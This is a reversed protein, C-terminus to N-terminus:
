KILMMKKTEAVGGVTLRCFYVGSALRRGADDLGDWVVEYSGHDHPRDVLTRVARGALDYVALNLRGPEPVFYHVTTAPNFPNPYNAGLIPDVGDPVTEPGNAVDTPFCVNEYLVAYTNSWDGGVMFLDPDCDGDVDCWCLAGERIGPFVFGSDVFGTGTNEYVVTYLSSGDYGCLALDLDGDLDYDGWAVSSRYLPLLDAVETFVGTGDNEYVKAIDPGTMATCGTLALDLDGDGDYDGWETDSLNAPPLGHDGTDNLIGPPDNEYFVTWRDGGDFGTLVLDPDGDGDYDGWDASGSRLGRLEFAPALLGGGLNEYVITRCDVGDYGMVLLDQDEDLDYDAWAVSSKEVGVLVQDDWEFHGTGDDAYVRAVRGLDSMGAMALDHDGDGDYDAWGLCGSGLSQIGLLEQRLVLDGEVYDYIRTARNRDIVGAVAGNDLFWAADAEIHGPSSSIPSLDSAYPRSPVHVRYGYGAAKMGRYTASSDTRSIHPNANGGDTTIWDGWVMQYLSPSEPNTFKFRFTQVPSIPNTKAEDYWSAWWDCGVKHVKHTWGEPGVWSSYNRARQDFVQVHFDYRNGAPTVDYWFTDPHDPNAGPVSLLYECVVLDSASTAMYAKVLSNCCAFGDWYILTSNYDGEYSITLALKEGATN